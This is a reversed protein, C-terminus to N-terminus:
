PVCGKKQYHEDCLTLIWQLDTRLKGSAGCVECVHGSMEEYKAVIEAVKRRIGTGGPRARLSRGDPLSDFAHVTIPQDEPHYYFRLTGFKEKVQDVVIDVPRGEAEYAATIETCMDRILQYWGSGCDLGFAGYLDDIRGKGRQEELSLGRRMFPFEEALAKEFKETMQADGETQASQRNAKSGLCHLGWMSMIAYALAPIEARARSRRM